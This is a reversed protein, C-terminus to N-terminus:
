SFSSELQYYLVTGKGETTARAQYARLCSDKAESYQKLEVYVEALSHELGTKLTKDKTLELLELLMIKADSWRKDQIYSTYLLEMIKSKGEFRRGLCLKRADNRKGHTYFEMALEEIVQDRGDFEELMYKNAEAWINLKLCSILLMRLATSRGPFKVGYMTMSKDILRLWKERANKYDKADFADTATTRLFHLFDDHDRVILDITETRTVAPEIQQDNIFQEVRQIQDTDLAPDPALLTQALTAWSELRDTLHADEDPTVSSPTPLVQILSSIHNTNM